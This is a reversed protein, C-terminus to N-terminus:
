KKWLKLENKLQILVNLKKTKKDILFSYNVNNIQTLFLLYPTGSSKLYFVHPNKLNKSYQDNYIKAYRTNFKLGSCLINLQNLIYEKTENTTINDIQVNCFSTKTFSNPEM